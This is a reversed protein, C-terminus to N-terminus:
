YRTLKKLEESSVKIVIMKAGRIKITRVVEGAPIISGDSSLAAWVQGGVRIQGTEDLNNIEEIVKATKGFYRENNFDYSGMKARKELLEAIISYIVFVGFAGLCLWIFWM